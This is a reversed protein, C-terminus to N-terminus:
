STRPVAVERGSCAELYRRITEAFGLYLADAVLAHGISVEALAPASRAFPPLNELNLDHGANVGLGAASAARVSEALQALAEDQTATGRSAAYPETYLEVRDAGVEAALTMDRGVDMFVASRIGADKARKLL